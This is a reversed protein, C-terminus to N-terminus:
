KIGKISKHRQPVTRATSSHTPFGNGSCRGLFKQKERQPFNCFEFTTKKQTLSPQSTQSEKGLAAQLTKHQGGGAFEGPM